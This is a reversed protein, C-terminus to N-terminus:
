TALHDTVAELNMGYAVLANTNIDALAYPGYQASWRSGDRYTVLRLGQRNAQRRITSLAPM